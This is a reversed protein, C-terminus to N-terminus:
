WMKASRAPWRQDSEEAWRVEWLYAMGRWINMQSFQVLM